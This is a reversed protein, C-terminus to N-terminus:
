KYVSAVEYLPIEKVSFSTNLSSQQGNATIFSFRHEDAYNTLLIEQKCGNM